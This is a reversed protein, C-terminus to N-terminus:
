KSENIEKRQRIISVIKDFIDKQKKALDMISYNMIILLRSDEIAKVSAMRKKPIDNGDFFAMEWVFEDKHIYGLVQDWDPRVRYAKLKWEKVIYMATAEDWENFLVEWSKVYREQCFLALESAERETLNAFLTVWYLVSM